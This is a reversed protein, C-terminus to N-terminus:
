TVVCYLDEVEQSIPLEFKILTKVISIVDNWAPM